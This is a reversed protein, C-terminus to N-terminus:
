GRKRARDGMSPDPQATPLSDMWERVEDAVWVASGGVQRRAPFTGAREMRWITSRGFGTVECVENAKLLWRGLRANDM